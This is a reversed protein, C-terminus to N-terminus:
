NPSGTVTPAPAATPTPSIIRTSVYRERNMLVTASFFNQTDVGSWILQSGSASPLLIITVVQDTRYGNFGPSESLTVMGGLVDVTLQGPSIVVGNIRLDYTPISTPTPVLTATPRPTSTPVPTPTSKPRLTATPVPTAAPIPRPTSTPSLIATPIPRPTATPVPIATPMPRPTSTPVRATTLTPRPTSTPVRAPAATPRPTVRPIPTATRTPSPATTAVQVAQVAPPMTPATSVVTAAPVSSLTLAGAQTPVPGTSPQPSPTPTPSPTAAPIRAVAPTPLERLDLFLRYSGTGSTSSARLIYVGTSPLTLSATTSGDIQLKGQTLLIGQSDFVALAGKLPGGRSSRLRRPSMTVTARLSEGGEFVFIDVYESPLITGNMFRQRHIEGGDLDGLLSRDGMDSIAICQPLANSSISSLVLRLCAAAPIAEPASPTDTTDTFRFVTNHSDPFSFARWQVKVANASDVWSTSAPVIADALNAVNLLTLGSPNFSRALDIVESNGALDRSAGNDYVDREADTRVCVWRGGFRRVPDSGTLPSDFTTVSHTRGRLGSDVSLAYLAVVGGMSHSIIDIQADDPITDYVARLGEWSALIGLLTDAEGYPFAVASVKDAEAAYSFFRFSADTYDGNEPRKLWNRVQDFPGDNQFAGTDFDYFDSPIDSCIGQVFVVYQAQSAPFDAGEPCPAASLPGRPGCELQVPFSFPTEFTSQGLTTVLKGSIIYEGVETIPPLFTGQGTVVTRGEIIGSGFLLFVSNLAEADSANAYTGGTKQALEQLEAAQAGQGPGLGIAFIPVGLEEGRKVVQLSTSASRNEEGDTLVVIAVNSAAASDLVDMADLLGDYLPTGGGESVRNIATTLLAKDTTLTQLVRAARRGSDPGPGFDLVAAQDGSKLLNILREGADMRLRGPDNTNMSGSSDFLLILTKVTSKESGLIDVDVVAISARSVVREPANTHSATVDLFSFDSETIGSQILSGVEDRPSVSLTFSAENTTFTGPLTGILGVREYILGADSLAKDVAADAQM